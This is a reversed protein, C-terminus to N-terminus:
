IGPSSGPVYVRSVIFVFGKNLLSYDRVCEFSGYRLETVFPGRLHSEEDLM